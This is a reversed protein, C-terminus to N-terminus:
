RRPIRRRGPSLVCATVLEVLQRYINAGALGTAGTVLVTQTM